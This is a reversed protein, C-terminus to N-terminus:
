VSRQIQVSRDVRPLDLDAFRWVRRSEDAENALDGRQRVRLVQGAIPFDAVPDHMNRGVGFNILRLGLGGDARQDFDLANDSLVAGNVRRLDLDLARHVVRDIVDPEETHDAAQREGLGSFVLVVRDAIPDNAALGNVDAFARANALLVARRGDAGEDFDFAVQWGVVCNVREPDLDFEVRVRGRVSDAEDVEVSLDFVWQWLSQDAIPRYSHPGHVYGVLRGVLGLDLRIGALDHHAGEDGYVAIQEL